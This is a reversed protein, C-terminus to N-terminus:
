RVTKNLVLSYQLQNVNDCTRRRAQEDNVVSVAFLLLLLLLLLLELCFAQFVPLLDIIGVRRAALM